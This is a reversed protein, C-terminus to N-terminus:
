VTEMFDELWNGKRMSKRSFFRVLKEIAEGLIKLIGQPGSGMGGTVQDEQKDESAKIDDQLLETAESDTQGDDKREM